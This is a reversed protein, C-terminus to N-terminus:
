GQELNLYRSVRSQNYFTIEYFRTFLIYYKSESVFVLLNTDIPM